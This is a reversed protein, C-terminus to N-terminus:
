DLYRDVCSNYDLYKNGYVYFYEENTLLHFLDGLYKTEKMTNDLLNGYLLNDNYIKVKGYVRINGKLEDGIEIDRIYKQTGDELIIETNYPFGKNYFRHILDTRTKEISANRMLRLYRDDEMIDDWDSFCIYHLNIKKSSTNLCYLYPLDYHIMKSNPHQSVLIWKKQYLINHSGSVIVGNLEYIDENGREVMICSQVISGDQLKDGNKIDSIKIKTGDYLTLLTNKDFCKPSLNSFMDKYNPTGFVDVIFVIILALPITIATYTLIVGVLAPIAWGPAFVSMLVLFSILIILAFVTYFIVTIFSDMVSIFWNMTGFLTYLTATMISQTKALTDNTKIIMQQAPIMVNIIRSFVDDIIGKMKDRLSSFMKQIEQVADVLMTVVSTLSSTLFNIPDVQEQSFSAIINQVCYQYNTYTFNFITDGEPLNLFGAFPMIFPKCKNDNWNAVITKRTLMVNTLGVVFFLILMLFIFYIVTPGYVSFYGQKTYLLSIQKRANRVNNIYNTSM